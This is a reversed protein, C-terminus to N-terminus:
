NFMRISCLSLIVLYIRHNPCRNSVSYRYSCFGKAVGSASCHRRNPSASISSRCSPVPGNAGFKKVTLLVTKCNQWIFTFEKPLGLIYGKINQVKEKNGMIDYSVLRSFNLINIGVPGGAKVIPWIVATYAESWSQPGTFQATKVTPTCSRISLLSEFAALSAKGQGLNDDDFVPRTWLM